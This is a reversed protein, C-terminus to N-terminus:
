FTLHILRAVFCVPCVSPHVPHVPICQSACSHVGPHVPVCQFAWQAIHMWSPHGAIAKCVHQMWQMGTESFQLCICQTFLLNADLRM